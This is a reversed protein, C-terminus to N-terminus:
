GGAGLSLGWGGAGEAGAGREPQIQLTLVLGRPWLRDVLVRAGDDKDPRDYVRKIRLGPTRKAMTM